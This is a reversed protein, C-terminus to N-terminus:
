RDNRGHGAALTDLAEQAEDIQSFGEADGRLIAHALALLRAALLAFGILLCSQGLWRPVPLEQMPLGLGWMRELYAWSAMILIGCYGLSLVVGLLGVARRVRAPLLRVVADVSIQAGERLTYPAGILILWAGLYLSAEQMWGFGTNFAFRLVVELFVLLTLGVLLLGVVGEEIRHLVPVM